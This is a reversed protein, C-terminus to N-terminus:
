CYRRAIYCMQSGVRQMKQPSPGKRSTKVATAKTSATASAKTSAKTSAKASAKASAKRSRLVSEVFDLRKQFRKKKGEERYRGISGSRRRKIKETQIRVRGRYQQARWELKKIGEKSIDNKWRPSLYERYNFILVLIILVLAICTLSYKNFKM